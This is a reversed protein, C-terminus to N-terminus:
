IQDFRNSIKHINSNLFHVNKGSYYFIHLKNRSSRLMTLIKKHTNNGWITDTKMESM